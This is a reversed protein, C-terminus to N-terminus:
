QMNRWLGTGSDYVLEDGNQPDTIEVDSLDELSLGPPGGGSPGQLGNGGSLGAFGGWLGVIGSWLGSM